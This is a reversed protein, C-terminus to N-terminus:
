GYLPEENLTEETFKVLFEEFSPAVELRLPLIDSLSADEEIVEHSFLVVPHNGDPAAVNTDICYSDGFMNSAFVIFGHPSLACGPVADTNEVIAEKISWIRQKLEICSEPEWRRYFEILEEPFGAARAAALDETSAPRLATGGRERLKAILIDMISRM